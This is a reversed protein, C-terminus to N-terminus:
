SLIQEIIDNNTIDNIVAEYNLALRHLLVSKAIQKIDEPTVFTRSDM